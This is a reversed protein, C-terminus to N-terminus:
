AIQLYLLGLQGYDLQNIDQLRSYFHLPHTKAQISIKLCAKHVQHHNFLLPILFYKIHSFHLQNIRLLM